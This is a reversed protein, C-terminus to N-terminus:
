LMNELFIYYTFQVFKINILLKAILFVLFYLIKNKYKIKEISINHIVVFLSMRRCFCMYKYRSCILKNGFLSLLFKIHIIVTASLVARGAASSRRRHGYSQGRAVINKRARIERRRLM